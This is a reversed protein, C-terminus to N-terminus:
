VTVPVPLNVGGMGADVDFQVRRAAGGDRTFIATGNGHPNDNVLRLAEGYDHTRVVSLVPGFIEDRYCDMDPTVHDVLSVGLFFGESSGYLEHERGDAAVTGGQERASDLYGAVRDRHERTVLPGMESDPDMGDGIRVGPLRDLIAQVLPEAADGVPVVVSIAMCREGASGYASSVAADAAMGI